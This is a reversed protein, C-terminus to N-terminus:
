NWSSGQSNKNNEEDIYIYTAYIQYGNLVRGNFDVFRLEFMYDGDLKLPLEDPKIIIGYIHYTGQRIPCSRDRSFDSNQLLTPWLFNDERMYRCFTKPGFHLLTKHYNNGSKKYILTEFNYDDGVDRFFELEGIIWYHTSNVKEVLLKDFNIFTRDNPVISRGDIIKVDHFSFTGSFITLLLLVFFLTTM